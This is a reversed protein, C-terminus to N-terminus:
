RLVGCTFFIKRERLLTLSWKSYSHEFHLWRPKLFAFVFLGFYLTPHRTDAFPQTDPTPGAGYSKLPFREREHGNEDTCNCAVLVTWARSKVLSFDCM